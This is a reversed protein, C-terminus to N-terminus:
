REAPLRDGLEVFVFTVRAAVGRQDFGDHRLTFRGLRQGTLSGVVLACSARSQKLAERAYEFVNIRLYRSEGTRVTRTMPAGRLDSRSVEGTLPSNLEFVELTLVGGRAADDVDSTADVYFELTADMLTEHALREPMPISFTYYNGLTGDEPQHVEVDNRTLDVTITRAPAIGAMATVVCAALGLCLVSRSELDIM